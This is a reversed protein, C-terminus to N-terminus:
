RKRKNFSAALGETRAKLQELRKLIHDVKESPELNRLISELKNLKKMTVLFTAEVLGSRDNPNTAIIAEAILIDLYAALLYGPSAEIDQKYELSDVAYKESVVEFVEYSEAQYKIFYAIHPTVRVYTNYDIAGSVFIRQLAECYQLFASSLEAHRIELKLDGLKGKESELTIKLEDLLDILQKVEQKSITSGGIKIESDNPKTSKAIESFFAWVGFLAAGAAGGLMLQKIFKFFNFKNPPNVPSAQASTTSSTSTVFSAGILTLFKEFKNLTYKHPSGENENLVQWDSKFTSTVREKLVNSDLDQNNAIFVAIQRSLVGVAQEIDIKPITPNTNENNRRKIEKDLKKEWGSRTAEKFEDVLDGSKLKYLEGLKANIYDIVKYIEGSQYLNIRNELSLFHNVISKLNQGEESNPIKLNFM